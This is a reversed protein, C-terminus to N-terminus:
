FLIPFVELLIIYFGQIRRVKERINIVFNSLIWGLAKYITRLNSLAKRCQYSIGKQSIGVENGYKEESKGQFYIAQLLEREGRPLMELARHLRNKMDNAIVIEDMSTIAEDPINDIVRKEEDDLADYSMVQNYTKKEEQGREQREMRFYAYYVESTVEVLKGEVKIMYKEKGAM